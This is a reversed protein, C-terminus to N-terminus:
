ASKKYGLPNIKEVWALKEKKTKPKAPGKDKLGLPNIKEVWKLKSSGSGEKRGSGPGGAAVDEDTTNDDQSHFNSLHDRLKATGHGFAPKGDAPRHVWFNSKGFHDISHGDPHSHKTASKGIPSQSDYGFEQAVDGVSGRHPGSGRSGSNIFQSPRTLILGAETANIVDQLRM